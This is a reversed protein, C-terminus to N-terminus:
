KKKKKATPTDAKPASVTSAAAPSSFKVVKKSARAERFVIFEKALAYLISCVPVALLVGMVGSINGGVIVSVLVLLGPLGVSKGVVKPYIFNGELAQLILVFVLFLFAKLPDVMLILFTGVAEGILAGIVPILATVGVLVSIAGAYPFRFVTMGIFCLSGLIVAEVLQGTIFSSFADCSIKLLRMLRLYLNEPLLARILRNTFAGAQEKTALIYIAIVVGLATNGLM